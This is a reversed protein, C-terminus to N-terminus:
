PEILPRDPWAARYLEDGLTLRFLAHRVEDEDYDPHRARIGDMAVGRVEDSMQVALDATAANGMRRWIALQVRHADEATDAAKM